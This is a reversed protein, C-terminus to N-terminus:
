VGPQYATSIHDLNHRGGKNAWASDTQSNHFVDDGAPDILGERDSDPSPSRSHTNLTKKAEIHAYRPRGWSPVRDLIGTGINGARPERSVLETEGAHMDQKERHYPLRYGSARSRIFFTLAFAAISAASAAASLGFATSNTSTTVGVDSLASNFSDRTKVFTVDSAITAATVLVAVIGSTIRGALIAHPFHRSLAITICSLVTLLSALIYAVAVFTSVTGYTHLQSYKSAAGALKLNTGPNFTFGVRTAYCSATSADDSRGCATLLSVAYDSSLDLSQRTSTQGVLDSTSINSLDQLFKSSSLKAPIALNTTDITLYSATTHSGVGSLLTLLTFLLSILSLVIAIAWTLGAPKRTAM